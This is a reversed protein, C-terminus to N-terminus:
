PLWGTKQRQMLARTRAAAAAHSTRGAVLDAIVRDAQQRRHVGDWVDLIQQLHLRLRAGTKRASKTVELGAECAALRHHLSARIPALEAAPGAPVRGALAAVAHAAAELDLIGMDEASALGRAIPIADSAPATALQALLDATRQWAVWRYAFDLGTGKINQMGMIHVRFGPPAARAIAEIVHDGALEPDPLVILSQLYLDIWLRRFRGEAADPSAAGACAQQIHRHCALVAAHRSALISLHDVAASALAGLPAAWRQLQPWLAPAVTARTEALTDHGLQLAAAILGEDLAGADVGLGRTIAEAEAAIRAAGLTGLKVGALARAARQLARQLREPAPLTAEDPFFLQLAAAKRQLAQAIFGRLGELNTGILVHAHASVDNVLIDAFVMSRSVRDARNNVVTVIWEGVDDPGHRDFGLRQWNNLLGTRENASMGNCFRLRRGHRRAEPYAKLVGLDPVIWDAMEKCAVERDIGLRAALALVLAINRPHEQYPFRALLDAPLLAHDRWGIAVLESGRADAADQLVPLMQEEATFIPRGPPIFHAMVRAVDSGAPGQIDEHDPYANTLTALDDRMWHCALIDVYGPTLAMCEWLFVDVELRAATALLDRQEWITAKDYARYIFIEHARQGPLAHIFMAECGTTKVLVECGLGHFLAAKLRETGSKGRTGWGGISLPISARDREITQRAQHLRLVMLGVGAFGLAALHSISSSPHEAPHRLLGLIDFAASPATWASLRPSPAVLASGDGAGRGAYLQILDAPGDRHPRFQVVFGLKALADLFVQRDRLEAGVLAAARLRALAAYRFVLTLRTRLWPRGAPFVVTTVGWPSFLHLQGGRPRALLDDVTPLHRGWDDIGAAIVRQGPVRTPTVEAMAGPPARLTGTPVRGTSHRHSQRKDPAPHAAEHLLRWLRRGIRDGRRVWWGRREQRADLGHGTNALLALARGLVTPDGGRPLVLPAEEGEGLGHVASAVAALTARAEPDIRHHLREAAEAALRRLRPSSSVTAVHAIAARLGPDREAHPEAEEIAIRVPIEDPDHRMITALRGPARAGLAITAAGRVRASPEASADALTVLAAVAAPADLGRLWGALEIRVHESPDHILRPLALVARAPSARLLARAAACRAFLDDAFAAPELRSELLAAVDPGLAAALLDFAAAQAWVPAGPNRALAHALGLAAGPTSQGAAARVALSRLAPAALQWASEGAMRVALDTIAPCPAEPCTRDAVLFALLGEAELRRARQQAQESLAEIGLDGRVLARRTARDPVTGTVLRHLELVAPPPAPGGTAHCIALQRTVQQVQTDREDLAAHAAQVLTLGRALRQSVRCAARRKTQAEFRPLLALLEDPTM